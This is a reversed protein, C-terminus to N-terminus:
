LSPMEGVRRGNRSSTESKGGVATAARLDEDVRAEREALAELVRAVIWSILLQFGVLVFLASGLLWLWLRPIEWGSAGMAMTAGGLAIGFLIASLGIWGFRPELSRELFRNAFLGQRYPQRHFLSVLFNFTVGLSYISVGTVALVLAGFLTFIGWPGLSTVGQVRALVLALGILAAVVVFSLGALGLVRVPNYELSTWLITKLFRTGDHVISLKSRGQRENYPIPSEVVKLGEHQCRTSMVPTFNLGDPLPYLSALTSRRLVRM